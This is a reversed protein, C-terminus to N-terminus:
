KNSRRKEIFEEIDALIYQQGFTHLVDYFKEIYELVGYDKFLHLTETAKMNHKYKYHELCFAKFKTIEAM